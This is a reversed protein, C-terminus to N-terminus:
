YLDLFSTYKRLEAGVREDKSIQRTISESLKATLKNSKVVQQLTFILDLFNVDKYNDLIEVNNHSHKIVQNIFTQVIDKYVNISQYSSDFSLKLNQEDFKYLIIGMAKFLYDFGKKIEKKQFHCANLLNYNNILREDKPNVSELTTATIKQYKICCPLCVLITQFSRTM